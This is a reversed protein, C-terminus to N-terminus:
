VRNRCMAVGSNLLFAMASKVSSMRSNAPKPMACNREPPTTSMTGANVIGIGIPTM